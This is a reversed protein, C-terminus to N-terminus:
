DIPVPYSDMEHALSDIVLQQSKKAIHIYDKKASEPMAIEGVAPSIAHLKEDTEAAFIESNKQKELMQNSTYLM